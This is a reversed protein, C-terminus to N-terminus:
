AFSMTLHNGAEGAGEVPSTDQLRQKGKSKEFSNSLISNAVSSVLSNTSKFHNNPKLDTNVIGRRKM